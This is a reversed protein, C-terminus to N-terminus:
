NAVTGSTTPISILPLIPNSLAKYEEFPSTYMSYVQNWDIKDPQYFLAISKATDISSGGGLGIIVTIRKKKVISIAKEISQVTPNPVAEDFHYVNVGSNQLIAHAKEYLPLLVKEKKTTTVLMCTNGYKKVIQGLIDLKGSGFHIKTPNYFTFNEM